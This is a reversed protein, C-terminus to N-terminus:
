RGLLRAALHANEDAFARWHPPTAELAHAPEQAVLRQHWRQMRGGRVELSVLVGHCWGHVDADVPEDVTVRQTGTAWDIADLEETIQRALEFALGAVARDRAAILGARWLAVAGDQGALADTILGVLRDRDVPGLARRDAMERESGSLATGTAAVPWVRLLGSRTLRARDAGLLPGSTIPAGDVSHVVRLSPSRPGPDLVLWVPVELGGRARNWRPLARELLNRELWAAEHPSECVLAEVASIQPVMRRLRARGKLGGWYSQTRARLNVTRGVYMGVGRQDRFRYVGPGAPLLACTDRVSAGGVAALRSAVM